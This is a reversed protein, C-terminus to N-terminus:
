QEQLCTFKGLFPDSQSHYARSAQEKLGHGSGPAKFCLIGPGYGYSPDRAVTKDPLFACTDLVFRFFKLLNRSRSKLDQDELIQPCLEPSLHSPIICGSWSGREAITRKDAWPNIPIKGPFHGYYKFCLPFLHPTWFSPFNSSWNTHSMDPNIRNLM